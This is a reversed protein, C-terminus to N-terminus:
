RDERFYPLGLSAPPQNERKKRITIFVLVVITMFYPLMDMIAAPINIKLNQVYNPLTRLMAFLLAGFIAKLPNWTSFIVLAVAIWGLGSTLNSSWQKLYYVAIYCGGIGCMFGGALIHAYKYLTVNIGASDAAAPNEGVVRMNLGQQTKNIYLYIFVAVLMVAYIFVNHSFLGKGVVPIDSLYPIHIGSNVAGGIKDDLYRNAYGTGIYNALGSGFISLVLGTVTHNGRFTVTVIAYILAGLLGAIGAALIALYINSSHIAVAYGACAGLMMMGECGLNTHGVKENLITGLTGCLLAICIRVSSDLFSGAIDFGSM